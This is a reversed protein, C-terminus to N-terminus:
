VDTREQLFTMGNEVADDLSQDSDLYVTHGDMSRHLILAPLSVGDALITNALQATRGTPNLPDVRKIRRKPRVFRSPTQTQDTCAWVRAYGRKEYDVAM